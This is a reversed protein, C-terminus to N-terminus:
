AFVGQLRKITIIRQTELREAQQKMQLIRAQIGALENVIRQQASAYAEVATLFMGDPLAADQYREIRSEIIDFTVDDIVYM